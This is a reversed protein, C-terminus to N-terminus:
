KIHNKCLNKRNEEIRQRKAEVIKNKFMDKDPMKGEFVEKPTLGKLPHYPKNNYEEVVTRLYSKTHEFDILEKNFFFDYKISKNVAEVMSNSFLIDKQAILKRINVNEIYTDVEAKNESGDDVILDVIKEDDTLNYKEFGSKLNQFAIKASYELSATVSLIFRSFNDALVYIYVKTNDM